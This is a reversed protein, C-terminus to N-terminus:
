GLMKESVSFNESSPCGNVAVDVDLEDRLSGSLICAEEEGDYIKPFLIAVDPENGDHFDIILKHPAFITANTEWQFTPLVKDESVNRKNEAEGSGTEESETSDDSEDESETSDDFGGEESKDSIDTPDGSKDNESDATIAADTFLSDQVIKQTVGDESFTFDYLNDNIHLM